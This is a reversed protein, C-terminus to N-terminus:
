LLKSCNCGWNGVEGLSAGYGLSHQWRETHLPLASNQNKKEPTWTTLLLMWMHTCTVSQDSKGCYLTHNTNKINYLSTKHQKWKIQGAHSTQAFEQIFSKCKKDRNKTLSDPLHLVTTSNHIFSVTAYWNSWFNLGFPVPHTIPIQKRKQGLFLGGKQRPAPRHERHSSIFNLTYSSSLVM